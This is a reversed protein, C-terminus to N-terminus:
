PATGIDGKSSALCLLNANARWIAAVRLIGINTGINNAGALEVSKTWNTAIRVRSGDVRPEGPRLCSEVHEPSPLLTPLSSPGCNWRSRKRQSFTQWCIQLRCVVWVTESAAAFVFPTVSSSLFDILRETVAPM